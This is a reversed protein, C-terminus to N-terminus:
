VRVCQEVNQGYLYVYQDNGMSQIRRRGLVLPLGYHSAPQNISRLGLQQLEYHFKELGYVQLLHVMPVNLSRILARKASIVGDFQEHFNEPQYGSLRTPVDPLLSEPLIVGEQMSLTYLIPKLISGTSRPATIIDVAAGHEEGAELMNGVYAKVEGSPVDIVLAAANHIGNGSLSKHHRAVLNNIKQQLFADLTTTIRAQTQIIGNQREAYARDLLHPALRPLPLPHDPLPEELALEYSLSDIKNAELLRLLLRDRKARLASRNRNPHLLAPSNPLVAM